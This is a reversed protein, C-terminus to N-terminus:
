KARDAAAIDAASKELTTEKMKSDVGEIRRRAKSVAVIWNIEYWQSVAILSLLASTM